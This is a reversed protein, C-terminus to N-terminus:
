RHKKEINQQKPWLLMIYIRFRLEIVPSDSMSINKLIPGPRLNVREDM